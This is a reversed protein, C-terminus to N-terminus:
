MVNTLWSLGSLIYGFLKGFFKFVICLSGVVPLDCGYYYLFVCLSLIIFIIIFILLYNKPKKVWKGEGGYTMINDTEM